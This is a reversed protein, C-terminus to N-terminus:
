SKRCRDSTAPPLAQTRSRGQRPAGPRAHRSPLFVPGHRVVTAQDTLGARCTRNSASNKGGAQRRGTASSLRAFELPDRERRQTVASLWGSHPVVNVKCSGRTRPDTSRGIQWGQLHQHDLIVGDVLIARPADERTIELGDKGPLNIAVILLGPNAGKGGCRRGCLGDAPLRLKGSVGGPRAFGDLERGPFFTAGGIGGLPRQRVLGEVAAVRGLAMQLDGLHGLKDVDIAHARPAAESHSFAFSACPFGQVSHDGADGAPSPEGQDYPAKAGPRSKGIM